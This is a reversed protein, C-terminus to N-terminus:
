GIGIGHAGTIRQRLQRKLKIRRLIRNHDIVATHIQGAQRHSRNQGNRHVEVLRLGPKHSRRIIQCGPHLIDQRHRWGAVPTNVDFVAGRALHHRNISVLHKV